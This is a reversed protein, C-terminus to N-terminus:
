RCVSVAEHGGTEGACTMARDDKMSVIRRDLSPRVSRSGNKPWLRVHFANRRYKLIACVDQQQNAAQLDALAVRRRACRNSSVCRRFQDDNEHHVSQWVFLHLTIVILKSLSSKSTKKLLTRREAIRVLRVADRHCRHAM